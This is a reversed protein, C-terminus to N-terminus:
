APLKTWSSPITSPRRCRGTRATPSRANSASPSPPWRPWAPAPSATSSATDRPRLRINLELLTQWDSFAEYHHNPVPLSAGYDNTYTSHEGFHPPLKARATAFDVTAGAQALRELVRRHPLHCGVTSLVELTAGHLQKIEEETFIEIKSHIQKM